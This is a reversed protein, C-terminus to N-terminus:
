HHHHHSHERYEIHCEIDDCAEEETELIAHSINHELLEKRIDKKVKTINKSKTVIHM